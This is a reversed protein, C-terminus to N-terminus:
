ERLYIYFDRFWHILTLYYRVFVVSLFFWGAIAHLLSITSSHFIFGDFNFEKTVYYYLGFFCVTMLAFYFIFEVLHRPGASSEYIAAHSHGHSNPLAKAPFLIRQLYNYALIMFALTLGFGSIIHISMLGLWGFLKLMAPSKLGVSSIYLPVLLLLLGWSHLRKYISSNLKSIIQQIRM